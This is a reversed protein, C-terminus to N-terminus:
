SRKSALTQAAGLIREVQGEMEKTRADLAAKQEKTTRLEERLSMNHKQAADLEAQLKAAKGEAEAHAAQARACAGSQEQLKASVEAAAARLAGVDVMVGDVNAMGAAAPEAAGSEGAGPAALGVPPPPPDYAVQMNPLDAYRLRSRRCTSEVLMRVWRRTTLPHVTHVIDELDKEELYGVGSEDFFRCALHFSETRDTDKRAESGGRELLAEADARHKKALEGAAARADEEPDAKRKSGVAPAPHDAAGRGEAAAKRIAAIDDDAEELGNDDKKEELSKRKDQRRAEDEVKDAERLMSEAKSIPGLATLLVRGYHMCLLEVVAECALSLEFTAEKTDAPTYDLLQVLPLSRLHDVGDACKATLRLPPPPNDLVKAAAAASEAARSAHEQKSAAVGKAVMLEAAAGTQAEVLEAAEQNSQVAEKVYNTLRDVLVVKGKAPDWETDLNHKRLEAQLEAVTMANVNEPLTPLAGGGAAGKEALELAIKKVAAEAEGLKAQAALLEAKATELQKSGEEAARLEALAPTNPEAIESANVVFVVTRQVHGREAAVADDSDARRFQVELLRTWMGAKSMNIGAQQRVHRAATRLLVSPDDAPHAGDEPAWPGGLLMHEGKPRRRVLVPVELHHQFMRSNPTSLLKPAVGGILLVKASWWTGLGNPGPANAAATELAAKVAAEAAAAEAVAAEAAARVGPPPRRKLPSPAREAKVDAEAAESPAADKDVAVTAVTDVDAMEADGGVDADAAEAEAEEAKAGEAADGGAKEAEEKEGEGAEEEAEKEDGEEEEDADEDAGSAEKTADDEALRAVLEAKVGKVSLGRSSLEGRLQVVTCRMWNKASASEASKRAGGLAAPASKRSSARARGGGRKGAADKAAEEAASKEGNEEAADHMAHMADGKGGGTAAEEEKVTDVPEAKEAGAEAKEPGAEAAPAEKAAEGDAADGAAAPAKGADEALEAGSDGADKMESDGTPAAAGNDPKKEPPPPVPVEAEAIEFQVPADLTLRQPGVFLDQWLTVVRMFESPVYMKEHQAAVYQLTRERVYVAQAPLRVSYRPGAPAPTRAGGSREAPRAPPRAPSFARDGGSRPPARDPMIRPPPPERDRGRPPDRCRTDRDRSPGSDRPMRAPPRRDVDRDRAASPPVARAVPPAAPPYVPPATPPRATRAAAIDDDLPEARFGHRRGGGAMPRQSAPAPMPAAARQHPQHPASGAFSTRGPVSSSTVNVPPGFRTTHTNSAASTIPTRSPMAPTPTPMRTSRAPTMSRHVRVSILRWEYKGGDLNPIGEVEVQQGVVTPPQGAVVDNHYFAVHDVIGYNPPMIETVTGTWKRPNNITYSQPEPERGFAPQGQDMGYGRAQGQGKWAPARSGWQDQAGWQTTQEIRQPRAANHQYGQGFGPRAAPQQQQQNSAGWNGRDNWSM